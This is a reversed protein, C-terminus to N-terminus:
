GYRVEEEKGQSIELLVSRDRNYYIMKSEGCACLYEEGYVDDDVYEGTYKYNHEHKKRRRLHRKIIEGILGVMIVMGTALTLILIYFELITLEPSM